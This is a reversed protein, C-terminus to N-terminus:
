AGGPLRTLRVPQGDKPFPLSLNNMPPRYDADVRWEFLRLLHHMVATVEMGAFV